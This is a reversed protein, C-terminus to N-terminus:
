EQSIKKSPGRQESSKMASRPCGITSRRWPRHHQPIHQVRIDADIDDLVPRCFQALAEVAKRILQANRGDRECFQDITGLLGSARDFVERHDVLKRCPKLSISEG